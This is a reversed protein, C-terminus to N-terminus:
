EKIAVFCGLAEYIAEGDQLGREITARDSNWEMLNKYNFKKGHKINISLLLDKEFQTLDNKM